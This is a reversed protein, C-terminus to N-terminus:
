RIMSLRGFKLNSSGANIINFQLSENMVVVVFRSSQMDTSTAVTLWLPHVQLEARGNQVLNQWLSVDGDHRFRFRPQPNGFDKKFKELNSRRCEFHLKSLM